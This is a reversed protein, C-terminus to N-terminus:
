FGRKAHCLSKWSKQAVWRKLKVAVAHSPSYRITILRNSERGSILGFTQQSEPSLSGNATGSIKRTIPTKDNPSFFGSYSTTARLFDYRNMRGIPFRGDRRPFFELVAPATRHGHAVQRQDSVPVAVPVVALRHPSPPPPVSVPRVVSRPSCLKPTALGEMHHPVAPAVPHRHRRPDAPEAPTIDAAAVRQHPPWCCHV